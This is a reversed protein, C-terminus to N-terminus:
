IDMVSPQCHVFWSVFWDWFAIGFSDQELKTRGAGQVEISVKVVNNAM